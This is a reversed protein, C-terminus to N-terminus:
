EDYRSQVIACMRQPPFLSRVRDRAQAGMRGAEEPHDLLWEVASALSAPEGPTALLGTVGPEVLDPVGNVATAVVPRGSALAETLSRGLGEYLSSVVFVDFASAIRAADPRFGTFLVPAGIKAAEERAEHELTGDGVMVFRADPREQAVLAAMRVFDVPSKQFDLRGVT